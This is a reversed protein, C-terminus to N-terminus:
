RDLAGDGCLDVFQEQGERTIQVISIGEVFGLSGDVVDTRVNRPELALFAQGLRLMSTLDLDHAVNSRFTSLLRLLSGPSRTFDRRAERLAAVLFDNQAQSRSFDGFPRASGKRLRNWALAQKGNLLQRGPQLDIGSAGREFLREPIDMTVGGMGNVVNRFGQFNVLVTHDFTCGSLAEVTEVMLDLGGYASAANIKEYGRGPLPVWADRPIGLIGARGTTPDIGVIHIADMRSNEPNEERADGGLVLLFVPADLSPPRDTGRIKTRITIAPQQSRAPLVAGLGVWISATAATLGAILGALKVRTV